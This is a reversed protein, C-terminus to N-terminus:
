AKHLNRSKALSFSFIILLLGLIIAGWQGLTPVTFDACSDFTLSTFLEGTDTTNTVLIQTIDESAIMGLFVPTNGNSNINTSGLSGSAGFVEVTFVASAAFPTILEFSVANVSSTFSFITNDTFTNPGAAYSPAGLSGTGLVVYDDETPTLTFGSQVDGPAYCADDSTDSISGLCGDSINNPGIRSSTFDEAVPANSISCGDNFMVQDMYFDVGSAPIVLNSSQIETGQIGSPPDEMQMLDTWSDQATTSSFYLFVIVLPLLTRKM